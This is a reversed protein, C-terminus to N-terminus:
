RHMPIIQHIFKLKEAVLPPTVFPYADPMGLSRNFSNILCAVGPWNKIISDFSKLDIDKYDFFPDSDNTSETKLCSHYATGLSDMMHLYHAWTEAWDEWPHASAYASIKSSAWDAPPGAQYHRELSKGYDATEDGFLDRFATLSDGTVLRDWYYHGVEHRLHGVLTRYPEGMATRMREREVDNAEAVNLTVIGDDHGTLIRKEVTDASDAMFRFCLGDPNDETKEQPRLGLRDLNYVLRRKAEEIKSWAFRNESLGLDPIIETL